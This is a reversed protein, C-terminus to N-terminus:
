EGKFVPQRKNIFASVGERYDHTQSAKKQLIDEDRLQNEFSNSLSIMLAEKTLALGRTPMKALTTAISLSQENFQDDPFVKYIMGMKEAEAAPVKEGLMM